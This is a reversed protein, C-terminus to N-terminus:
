KYGVWKRTDTDFIWWTSNAYGFNFKAKVSVDDPLSFVKTLVGKRNYLEIKIDNVNLLAFEANPIGTYVVANNYTETDDDGDDTLDDDAAAEKTKLEIPTEEDVGDLSYFVLSGKDFFVIKKKAADFAGVSQEDPQAQEEVIAETETPMGKADLKYRVWGFDSYGNSEISKTGPNYWLGRVDFMTEQNDASIRKGTPAFVAMPYTTNGAFCAYYKKLIPHWVIGAGNTGDEGPMELSMTKKLPKAVPQAHSAITFFFLLFALTTRLNM